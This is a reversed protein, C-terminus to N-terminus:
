VIDAFAAQSTARAKPLNHSPYFMPFGKHLDELSGGSLDYGGHKSTQTAREPVLLSCWSQLSDDEHGGKQHQKGKEKQM